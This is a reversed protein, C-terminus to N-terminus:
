PYKKRLAAFVQEAPEGAVQGSEMDQWRRMLEEEPDAEANADRGEDLSRLLLYALEARDDVPLGLVDSKLKEAIETM